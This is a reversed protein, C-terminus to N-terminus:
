KRGMTKRFLPPSYSPFVMTLLHSSSPLDVTCIILRKCFLYNKSNLLLFWQYRRMWTLQKRAYHWTNLKVNQIASQLNETGDLVPFLERYGVTRLDSLYRRYARYNWSDELLFWLRPNQKCYGECRRMLRLYERVNPHWFVVDEPNLWQVDEFEFGISEDPLVRSAAGMMQELAAVQM